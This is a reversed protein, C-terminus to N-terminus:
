LFKIIKCKTCKQISTPAEDARRTQEFGAHEFIHQCNAIEYKQGYRRNPYPQNFMLRPGPLDNRATSILVNIQDISYLINLSSTELNKKYL